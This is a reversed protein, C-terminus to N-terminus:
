DGGSARCFALLHDYFDVPGSPCPLIVPPQEFVSAVLGHFQEIQDRSGDPGSSPVVVIVELAPLQSNILRVVQQWPNAAARLQAEDRGEGHLAFFDQSPLALEARSFQDLQVPANRLPSLGVVVARYKPLDRLPRVSFQLLRGKWNWALWAIGVAVLLAVLSVTLLLPRDPVPAGWALVVMDYSLNIAMGALTITCFLLAFPLFALRRPRERQGSTHAPSWARVEQLRAGADDMAKEDLEGGLELRPLSIHYYRAGAACVDSVLPAPLNGYVVDGASLKAVLDADIESVVQAEIGQRRLWIPTGPHRTILYNTMDVVGFYRKHNQRHGCYRRRYM